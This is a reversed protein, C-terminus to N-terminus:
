GRHISLRVSIKLETRSRRAPSAVGRRAWLERLAIMAEPLALILALIELAPV